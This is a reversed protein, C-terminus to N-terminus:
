FFVNNSKKIYYDMVKQDRKMVYLKKNIDLGAVIKPNDISVKKVDEEDIALIKLEPNRKLKNMYVYHEKNNAEDVLKEVMSKIMALRKEETINTLVKEKAKENSKNSKLSEKRITNIDLAMPKNEVDDKGNCLSTLMEIANQKNGSCRKHFFKTLVQDISMRSAQELKVSKDNVIQVLDDITETTFLKETLEKSLTLM